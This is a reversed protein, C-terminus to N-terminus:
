YKVIRQTIRNVGDTFTAFYVGASLNNASISRVQAADYVGIMKGNLDSVSIMGRDANNVRFSLEGVFPNPFVEFSPKGTVNGEAPAFQGQTTVLETGSVVEGHVLNIPTVNDVGLSIVFADNGNQSGNTSIVAASTFTGGLNEWANSVFKAVRLDADAWAGKGGDGIEFYAANSPGAGGGTTRTANWYGDTTIADLGGNLSPSSGLGNPDSDIFEVEWANTSSNNHLTIPRYKSGKGVPCKFKSAAWVSPHNLYIKGDIFSNVNGGVVGNGGANSIHMLLKYSGPQLNGNKMTLRQFDIDAGLQVIGGSKNIMLGETEIQSSNGLTFVQTNGGAAVVEDLTLISSAGTNIDGESVLVVFRLNANALNHNLDNRVWITDNSSTNWSLIRASDINLNYFFIANNNQNFSRDSAGQISVTGTRPNLAGRVSTTWSGEVILTNTIPATISGGNVVFDRRITAPVDEDFRLDGKNVIVNGSAILIANASGKWVKVMNANTHMDVYLNFSNVTPNETGSNVFMDATKVGGFWFDGAHGNNGLGVFEVTDLIKISGQRFDGDTLTLRNAVVLTDTLDNGFFNDSNNTSTNTKNLVLNWLECSGVTQGTGSSVHFSQADDGNVFLTSKRHDYTSVKNKSLNGSLFIKGEQPGKFQSYAGVLIGGVNVTSKFRAQFYGASTLNLTGSINIGSSSAANVLGNGSVTLDRVSSVGTEVNFVLFTGTVNVDRATLTTGTGEVYIRGKYSNVVTFDRVGVSSPIRCDKVGTNFTVDDDCDPVTNSLWNDAELFSETSGGGDWSHPTNVNDGCQAFVDSAAATIFAAAL